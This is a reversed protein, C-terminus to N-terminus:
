KVVSRQKWKRKQIYKKISFYSMIGSSIVILMTIVIMQQNMYLFHLMYAISFALLPSICWVIVIKKVIHTRLIAVGDNALGIGIIGATTIQTMPIPIGYISAVIAITAGTSSVIMGNALTLNTIGKGNTELTRGGLILAGIAIFFGGIVMAEDITFINISVLPGVANGVNNM